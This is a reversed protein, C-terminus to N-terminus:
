RPSSCTASPTAMWNMAKRSVIASSSPSCTRTTPSPPWATACTAPPLIGLSRRLRGSSGGDDAVSVIATLNGTREKLGRLLTALGNGGGIAVIKPGRGLRRHEAVAQAVPRGPRMYPALLARNLRYMGLLLLAVGAAGFVVARLWRPLVLLSFVPLLNSEPNARYIDLLIIALGLGILATGLIAVAFWRKVGLGPVM